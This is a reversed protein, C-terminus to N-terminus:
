ARKRLSIWPKSGRDAREKGAAGEELFIRECRKLTKIHLDEEQRSVTRWHKRVTEREGLHTERMDM